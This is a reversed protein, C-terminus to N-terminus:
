KKDAMTTISGSSKIAENVIATKDIRRRRQSRPALWVHGENRPDVISKAGRDARMGKKWAWAGHGRAKFGASTINWDRKRPEDDLSLRPDREDYWM